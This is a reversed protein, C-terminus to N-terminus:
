SKNKSGMGYKGMTEIIKEIGRSGFYFSMILMGWQGLLEVYASNIKFTPVVVGHVVESGMNGDIIAFFSYMVLIFILVMPRINKALWSDSNMDIRQRETLEDQAQAEAQLLIDTLEKKAAEREADTTVFKDIIGGVQGILGGSLLSIIKDVIPM